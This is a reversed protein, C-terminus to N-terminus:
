PRRVAAVSAWLEAAPPTGIFSARVVGNADAVVIMPVTEIAYRDHLDRKTQYSVDQVAVDPSALVAAKALAGECSACTASSFVAVLWRADPRDFDDRDLQGPVAWRSQTPPQPRRRRLVLAIGGAAAMLALAIVVRSVAAMM